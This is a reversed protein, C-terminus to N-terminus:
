SEGHGSVKKLTLYDYRIYSAGDDPSVDLISYDTNNFHAVEATTNRADHRVIVTITEDLRTGVLTYQQTLTRKQQTFHLTYDATFKDVNVGGIDEPSWHGLQLKRTFDAPKFSAM